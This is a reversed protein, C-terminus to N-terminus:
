KSPAVDKLWVKEAGYDDIVIAGAENMKVKAAPALEGEGKGSADVTLIAVGLDYGARPKSEPVGAGLFLIPDATVVTILRGSGTPRAFAYKIPTRRQGLEIYGSDKMGSLVPRVAATGGDKLAKMVASREAETSFREIGITTKSTASADPSKVSATATFTEGGPQACAVSPALISGGLAVAGAAVLYLTVRRM